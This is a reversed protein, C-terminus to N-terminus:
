PLLLDLKEELEWLRNSADIRKKIGDIRQQEDTPLREFDRHLLTWFQNRELCDAITGFDSALEPEGIDQLIAIFERLEEDGSFLQEFVSEFGNIDSECRVCICYFIASDALGIVARTKPQDKYLALIEEFRIGVRDM